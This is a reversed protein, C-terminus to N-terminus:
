ASKLEEWWKKKSEDEPNMMENLKTLIKWYELCDMEDIEDQTKETMAMMIFDNAKESNEASVKFNSDAWIEAWDFLISTYERKLKRTIFEKM